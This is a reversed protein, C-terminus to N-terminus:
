DGKKEKKCKCIDPYIVLDGRHNLLHTCNLESGCVYCCVKIKM